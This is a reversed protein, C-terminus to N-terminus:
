RKGKTFVLFFRVCKDINLEFKSQTNKKYKNKM